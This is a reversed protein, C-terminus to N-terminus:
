YLPGPTAPAEVVHHETAHHERAKATQRAPTIVVPCTAHRVCYATVSGLLREALWSHGHRGLVLLDAGASIHVLARPPWQDVMHLQMAVGETAGRVAEMVRNQHAQGEALASERARYPTGVMPPPGEVPPPDTHWATVVHVEAGRKRAEELAWRVADVSADSGDVGVVIKGNGAM